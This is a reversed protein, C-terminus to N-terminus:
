TVPTVKERSPLVSIDQLRSPVTRQQSAFVRMCSATELASSFNEHRASEGSPFVSATPPPQHFSPCWFTGCTTLKQSVAELCHTVLATLTRSITDRKLKEGSPLVKATPIASSERCSTSTFEFLDKKREVLRLQSTTQDGVSPVSATPSSVSHIPRRSIAVCRM